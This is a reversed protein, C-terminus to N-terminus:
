VPKIKVNHKVFYNYFTLQIEDNYNLGEPIPTLGYRRYLGSPQNGSM